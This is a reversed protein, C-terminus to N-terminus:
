RTPMLWGFAADSSMTQQEGHEPKANEPLAKSNDCIAKPCSTASLTAVNM